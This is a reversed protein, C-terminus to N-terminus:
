RLRRSGGVLRQTGVDETSAAAGFPEGCQTEV